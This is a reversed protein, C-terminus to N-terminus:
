LERLAAADHILILNVRTSGRATISVLWSNRLLLTFGERTEGWGSVKPCLNVEGNSILVPPQTGKRCLKTRPESFDLGGHETTAVVWPGRWTSELHILKGM